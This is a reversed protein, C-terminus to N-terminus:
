NPNIYSKLVHKLHGLLELSYDLFLKRRGFLKDSFPLLIVFAYFLEQVATKFSNSDVNGVNLGLVEVTLQM